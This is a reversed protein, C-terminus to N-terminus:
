AKKKPRGVPKPSNGVGTASGSSAQGVGSVQEPLTEPVEPETLEPENLAETPFAKEEVLEKVDKTSDPNNLEDIQRDIKKDMPEQNAYDIMTKTNIIIDKEVQQRTFPDAVKSKQGTAQIIYTVMQRVVVQAIDGPLKRSQGAPIIYYQSVHQTASDKRVDVGGKEAVWKDQDSFPAGGTVSRAFKARFAQSLPNFIEVVMSEGFGDLSSKIDSSGVEEVFGVVDNAM